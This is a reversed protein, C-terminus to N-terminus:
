QEVPKNNATKDLSITLTQEDQPIYLDGKQGCAVVTFAVALCSALVLVRPTFQYHKAATFM